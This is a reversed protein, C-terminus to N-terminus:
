EYYVLVGDGGSMDVFVIHDSAPPMAYVHRFHGTVNVVCKPQRVHYTQALYSPLNDVAVKVVKLNPMQDILSLWTLSANKSVYGLDLFEVTELPHIVQTLTSIDKPLLSNPPAFSGLWYYCSSLPHPQPASHYDFCGFDNKRVCLAAVHLRM